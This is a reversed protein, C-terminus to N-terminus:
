RLLNDPVKISAQNLRFIEGRWVEYMMNAKNMGMRALVTPGSPGDFFEKDAPELAKLALVFVGSDGALEGPVVTPAIQGPQTVSYVAALMPQPALRSFIEETSLSARRQMPTEGRSVSPPTDVTAGALSSTTLTAIFSTASLSALRTAEQDLWAATVEDAVDALNPIYSEERELPKYLVLLNETEVPHAVRGLPSEFARRIANADNEFFDLPSDATFHESTEVLLSLSAAAQAL